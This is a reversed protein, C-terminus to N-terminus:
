PAQKVSTSEIHSDVMELFEEEDTPLKYIGHKQLFSHFEIARRKLEEYAEKFDM